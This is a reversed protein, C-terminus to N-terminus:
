LAVNFTYSTKIDKFVSCSFTAMVIKEGTKYPVFFFKVRFRKNPQLDPLKHQIEEKMIGSGTLTLSCDKLMENVPNMFVVEGSAECQLKIQSPITIHIPPDLLVVDNVALYINDTQQKDTIVASVKMNDCHLMHKRYASFPVLIPVYLDKQPQLTEEKLEKHINEAPSGNYMMAQVSINISLPKAASSESHLVLKLSVDKGNMPNSEVEFRLSLPPPKVSPTIVARDEAVNRLMCGNMLPEEGGSFDRTLAYKFVAREEESGESPKYDNTINMRKNSGVAKTSINQGVRKTDCFIKVKSGDAKILWDVCDANVEAFVFPIDYKLDVDGNLIAKVPAPGCCYVGSSKEQPTPDLVQWGDYKGDVALDPRRMWGEVWVHFNWVSDRSEKPRVGYDAHYVDIILNQNTDHASQFNTVVRCPIGLLRMVSCMVGAFVWCQGYKVPCCHTNYWQKLIARSSSWHSPSVGGWYPSQWRGQLVGGDDQCNIMASVVRGVYIPNCRASVDDAPDMAHKRNVDLIKMCIKVMIEEFQGFDWSKPSIYNGSGTYIIGHQNMVYEQREQEDPLFVWDDSCWPNFLVVLTALQTEENGHKVSLTYEGVPADAAPTVTLTLAGTLPSCNGHLEAKWVAKASPSRQVSDPIGFCLKTGREESPRKGTVAVFILPHLDPNFPQALQLTLRFPQGRRVILQDVSIASTHHETNNTKSHLDVGRVVSPKIVTM